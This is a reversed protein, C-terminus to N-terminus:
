PQREMGDEAARAYKVSKKLTRVPVGGHTSSGCPARKSWCACAHVNPGLPVLSAPAAHKVAECVAEHVGEGLNVFRVPAEDFNFFLAVLEVLIEVVDFLYDGPYGAALGVELCVEFVEGLFVFLKDSEFRANFGRHVGEGGGDFVGCPPEFLEFVVGVL